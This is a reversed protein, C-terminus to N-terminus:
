APLHSQAISVHENAALSDNLEAGQVQNLPSYSGSTQQYCHLWSAGHTVADEVVHKGTPQKQAKGGAIAPFSPSIMGLPLSSRTFVDGQVVAVELQGISKRLFPKFPLSVDRGRFPALFSLEQLM